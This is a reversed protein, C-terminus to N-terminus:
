ATAKRSARWEALRRDSALTYLNRTNAYKKAKEIIEEDFKELIKISM